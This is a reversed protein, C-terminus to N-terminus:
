MNVLSSSVGEFYINEQTMKLIDIINKVYAITKAQTFRVEHTNCNKMYTLNFLHMLSDVAQVIHEEILCYSPPIFITFKTGPDRLKMTAVLNDVEKIFRDSLSAFEVQSINRRCLEEIIDLANNHHQEASM